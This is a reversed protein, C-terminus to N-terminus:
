LMEDIKRWGSQWLAVLSDPVATGDSTLSALQGATVPLLPRLVPELLGLFAATPGAPLHVLRANRIGLKRRIRLLLREMSLVEPGGIEITRGESAPEELLAAVAGALDDVFIPQVPARGNGFVPMVPLAALRRLGELVPSGPGFIMTPRVITWRLGSRM